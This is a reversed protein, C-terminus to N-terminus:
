AFPTYAIGNALVGALAVTNEQSQSFMALIDTASTGHDMANLWYDFGAQDPARHLINQYIKGLFDGHAPRAGYMAVFENSAIFASAVDNLSAGGEMRGIWYGLGALDPTRNFAAQYLRYAQGAVGDVDLTVMADDFRLREIGSLTDLEGAVRLSAV